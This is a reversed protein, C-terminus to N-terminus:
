HNNWKEVFVVTVFSRYQQLNQPFISAKFPVRHNELLIYTLQIFTLSILVATSILIIIKFNYHLIFNNYKINNIYIKIIYNRNKNYKNIKSQFM